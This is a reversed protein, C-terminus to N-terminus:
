SELVRSNKKLSRDKMEFAMLVADEHGKLVGVKLLTPILTLKLVRFLELLGANKRLLAM